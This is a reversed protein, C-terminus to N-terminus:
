LGILFLDEFEKGLDSALKEIDNMIVNGDEDLIFGVFRDGGNCCEFTCGRM